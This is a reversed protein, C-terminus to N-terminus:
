PAAKSMSLVTPTETIYGTTKLFDALADPFSTFTIEDGPPCKDEVLASACGPPLGWDSTRNHSKMMVRWAENLRGARAAAAVYGACAGNSATECAQRYEPLLAEFQSKLGPATTVEVVQGNRVNFFRPPAVSMAYAEFAYLFRDDGVEIEPVGDGDFDKPAEGGAHDWSGLDVTRWGSGPEVIRIQTCCHAGGSYTEVLVEPGPSQRDYDGVALQVAGATELAMEHAPGASTSIALKAKYDDEGGVRELHLQLGEAHLDGPAGERWEWAVVTGPAIFAGKPPPAPAVAVAPQVPLAAPRAGQRMRVGVGLAAAIVLVAVVALGVGMRNVAM